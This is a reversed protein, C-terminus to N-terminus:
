RGIIRLIVCIVIVVGLLALIPSPLFGFIKKFFEPVYGLTDILNSMTSGFWSIGNDLASLDFKGNGSVSTSSDSDYNNNMVNGKNTEIKDETADNNFRVYNASGYYWFTNNEYEVTDKLGVVPIFAVDRLFVTDDSSKYNTYDIFCSGTEAKYIRDIYKAYAVQGPANVYAYTLRVRIGKQLVEFSSADIQKQVKEDIVMERWSANISYDASFGRLYIGNKYAMDKLDLGNAIDDSVGSYGDGKDPVISSPKDSAKATATLLKDAKRTAAVSDEAITVTSMKGIHIDGDKEIYYPFLYIYDYRMTDDKFDCGGLSIKYSTGTLITRYYDVGYAKGTFHFGAIVGKKLVADDDFPIDNWSVVGTEEDYDVSLSLSSNSVSGSSRYMNPIIDLVNEYALLCYSKGFDTFTGNLLYSYLNSLTDHKEEYYELAGTGKNFKTGRDAMNFSLVDIGSDTFDIYRYIYNLYYGRSIHSTADSGDYTLVWEGNQLSYTQYSYITAQEVKSKDDSLRYFYIYTDENTFEYYHKSYDWTRGGFSDFAVVKEGEVFYVYKTTGDMATFYHRTTQADEAASASLAACMCMTATIVLAFLIKFHKM